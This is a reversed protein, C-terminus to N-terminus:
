GVELERGECGGAAKKKKRGEPGDRDEVRDAAGAEGQAVSRAQEEAELGESLASHVWM